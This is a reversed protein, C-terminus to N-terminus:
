QKCDSAIVERARQAEEARSKDDLFEREGKENTRQIRLGEELNSLHRQARLCNEAKAAALREEEAKKKAAAEEELKRRRAELEPDSAKPMLPLAAASPASAPPLPTPAESGTPRQLIDREAVEAPPALDSYQVRGSKDRWKWQAVAPLCVGLALIVILSSKSILRLNM